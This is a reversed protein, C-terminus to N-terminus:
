SATFSTLEYVQEPQGKCTRVMSSRLIRKPSSARCTHSTMSLSILSEFRMLSWTCPSILALQCVHRRDSVRM